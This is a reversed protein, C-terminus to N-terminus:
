KLALTPVVVHLLRKTVELRITLTQSVERNRWEREGERQTLM